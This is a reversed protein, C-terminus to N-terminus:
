LDVSLIDVEWMRSIYLFELGCSHHRTESCAEEEAEDCGPGKKLLWHLCSVAVAHLPLGKHMLYASTGCSSARACSVYKSQARLRRELTTSLIQIATM